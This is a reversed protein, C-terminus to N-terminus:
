THRPWSLKRDKWTPSHSGSIVPFACTPIIVTKLQPYVLNVRLLLVWWSTRWKETSRLLPMRCAWGNYQSCKGCKGWCGSHQDVIQFFWGYYKWGCIESSSSILVRHVADLETHRQWSPGQDYPSRSRQGKSMLYQLTWGQGLICWCHFNPSIWDLLKWYILIVFVFLADELM